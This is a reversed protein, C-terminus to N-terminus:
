LTRVFSPPSAGEAGVAHMSKAKGLWDRQERNASRQSILAVCHILTIERLNYCFVMVTHIEEVFEGFLMLM